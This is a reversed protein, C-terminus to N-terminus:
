GEGEYFSDEEYWCDLCTITKCDHWIEIETNQSECKPCPENTKSDGTITSILTDTGIKLEILEKLSKDELAM